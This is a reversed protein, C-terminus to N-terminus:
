LSSKRKLCIDSVISIELDMFIDQYNLITNGTKRLVIYSTSIGFRILFLHEM